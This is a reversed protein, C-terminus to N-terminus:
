RKVPAEGLAIEVEQLFLRASHEWSLAAVRRRGEELWQGNTSSTDLIRRCTTTVAATDLAPVRFPYEPWLDDLAQGPTVVPLTGCALAELPPLGFGEYSSLYISAEAGRYLAPLIEDRIWGPRLIRTSVRTAECWRDLQRPDRLRNAGCLVLRLDPIERALTTFAELVLDLRRRPLVSGLALLYPPEIGLRRLEATEHEPAEPPAFFQPDVGLPVVGIKAEPLRYTSAVDRAMTRSDVLVRRAQRAARRALIRRRWRERWRFEHQLHEFSLDHLTVMAPVDPAAPLSYAPSFLLDAPRNRLLRPLRLQEWPIARASPRLDFLPEFRTRGTPSEGEWLSHSFPDGKFYLSWCGGVGLRAVGGLLGELYRGVGTPQGEMEYAVISLDRARDPAAVGAAPSM